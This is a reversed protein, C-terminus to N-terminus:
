FFIAKPRIYRIPLVSTMGAFINVNAIGCKWAVQVIRNDCLLVYPIKVAAFFGLRM